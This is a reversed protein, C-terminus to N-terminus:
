QGDKTDAQNVIIKRVPEISEKLGSNELKKILVSQKSRNMVESKSSIYEVHLEKLERNMDDIQRVVSEAYYSNSIYLVGIGALFVIFNLQGRSWEDALFEGGFFKKFFKAFLSLKKPIQPVEPQVQVEPEPEPAEFFVNRKEEM